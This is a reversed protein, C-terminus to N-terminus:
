VVSRDRYPSNKGPENLTGRYSARMERATLDCVCGFKGAKILQVAWDYLQQFYDSAYFLRDEWNGGLWRVDDIISDVYEQEEKTPNTDDFRLNFKGAYEKALGFNLCISKAHGIHLYGNLEPPFRTHVRGGNKGAARDTDIIQEIFNRSPKKGRVIRRDFPPTNTAAMEFGKSRRGGASPASSRAAPVVQGIYCIGGVQQVATVIFSKRPPRQDLVPPWGTAGIPSLIMSVSRAAFKRVWFARLAKISTHSCNPCVVHFRFSELEKPDLKFGAPLGSFEIDDTELLMLQDSSLERIDAIRNAMRRISQEFLNRVTRGNGFRRDRERYLEALGRMLKPRTGEAVRPQKDRLWKYIRALEVPTYDEFHLVRNFRSSLGPNSDLLTNM